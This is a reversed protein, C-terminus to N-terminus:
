QCTAKEEESFSFLSRHPRALATQERSPVSPALFGTKRECRGQGRQDHSTGWAGGSFRDKRNSSLM